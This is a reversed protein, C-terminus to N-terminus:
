GEVNDVFFIDVIEKRSLNLAKQFAVVDDVFMKRKGHIKNSFSASTIGMLDAIHKHRYGTDDIKENLLKYNVM